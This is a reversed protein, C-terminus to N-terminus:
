YNIDSIQDDINIAAFNEDALLLSIQRRRLKFQQFRQNSRRSANKRSALKDFASEPIIIVSQFAGNVRM